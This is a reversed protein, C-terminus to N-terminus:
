ATRRKRARRTTGFVDKAFADLRRNFEEHSEMMSFHGAGEVVELRGDPLAAALADASARPTVRDHEGVLVLAPVRVHEVAHRLDLDMLGALAGTWIESPARAALGLAYSVVHPSAEPGFHTARAILSGVDARSSVIDRRLRNVRSGADRLSLRPRLLGAISRVAGRLLGSSAAGAFVCGAIREDFLDPRSEAIALVAVAGMSHGVVLVPGGTSVGDLVAVLDNGFAAPSVDGGVARASGGHSRFDFLVCRYRDSLGTWQYHWTTQDLGFGHAFVIAPRSRDGAARVALGTGDLSRITGLDEPPLLSLAEHAEADGRRRRAKLVTRGLMGGAVAGAAIGATVLATRRRTM